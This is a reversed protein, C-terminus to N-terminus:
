AVSFERARRKWGKLFVGQTADRAVIAEYLRVRRAVLKNIFAPGIANVVKECAGITESGIGGDVACEEGNARLERQVIKIATGPGHNISMDFAIPQVLTPLMDIKPRLFYNARYIQRAEDKSMKEVDFAGLNDDERWAQLTRLTVGFNTPGGKDNPHDVYGGERELIDEIMQDPTKGSSQRPMVAPRDRLRVPPIVQPAGTDDGGDATPLPPVEVANSEPMVSLASAPEGALLNTIEQVVPQVEDIASELNELLGSAANPSTGDIVTQLKAIAEDIGQTAAVFDKQADALKARDLAAIATEIKIWEPGDPIVLFRAQELKTRAATYESM